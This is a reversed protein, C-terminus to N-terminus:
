RGAEVCGEERECAVAAAAGAGGGLIWTLLVSARRAMASIM